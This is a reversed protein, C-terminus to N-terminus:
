CPQNSVPQLFDREVWITEGTNGTVAEIDLEIWGIQNFGAILFEKGLCKRFVEATPLRTDGEPLNEPIGVLRVKDGIKM